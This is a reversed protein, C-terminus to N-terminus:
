PSQAYKRKMDQPDIFRKMRLDRYIESEGDAEALRGM